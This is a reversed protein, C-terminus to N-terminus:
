GTEVNYHPHCKVPAPRLTGEGTSFLGTLIFALYRLTVYIHIKEQTGKYRERESYLLAMSWGM